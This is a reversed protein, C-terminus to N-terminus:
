KRDLKVVTLDVAVTKYVVREPRPKYAVDWERLDSKEADVMRREETRRSVNVSFLAECQDGKLGRRLQALAAADFGELPLNFTLMSDEYDHARRPPGDFAVRVHVVEVSEVQSRNKGYFEGWERGHEIVRQQIVPRVKADIIRFDAPRWVSPMVHETRYVNPRFTMRPTTEARASLAPALGVIVVVVAHSLKM